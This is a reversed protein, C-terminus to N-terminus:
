RGEETVERHRDPGNAAPGATEGVQGLVTTGTGTPTGTPTDTLEATADVAEVYGELAAGWMTLAETRTILGDLYSGTVRRLAAELHLTAQDLLDLAVVTGVPHRHQHQYPHLPGTM